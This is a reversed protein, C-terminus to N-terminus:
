NITLGKLNLTYGSLTSPYMVTMTESDIQIGCAADSFIFRTTGSGKVLNLTGVTEGNDEPNLKVLFAREIDVITKGAHKRALEGMYTFNTGNLSVVLDEKGGFLEGLGIINTM